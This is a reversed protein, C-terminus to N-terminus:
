RKKVTTASAFEWMEPAATRAEPRAEEGRGPVGRRIAPPAGLFVNDEGSPLSLFAWNLIKGSHGHRIPIYVSKQGPQGGEPLQM